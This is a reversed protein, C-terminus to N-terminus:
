GTRTTEVNVTPGHIKLRYKAPENKPTGFVVSHKELHRVVNYMYKRFSNKKDLLSLSNFEDTAKVNNM